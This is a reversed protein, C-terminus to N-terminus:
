PCRGHRTLLLIPQDTLEGQLTVPYTAMLLLRKATNKPLIEKLEELGGSALRLYEGRTLVVVEPVNAEAADNLHPIIRDWDFDFVLPDVSVFELAHAFLWPLYLFYKRLGVKEYSGDFTGGHEAWAVIAQVTLEADGVKFGPHVAPLMPFPKGTGGNTLETIQICHQSDWTPRVFQVKLEPTDVPEPRLAEVWGFQETFLAVVTTIRGPQALLAFHDVGVAGIRDRVTLQEEM